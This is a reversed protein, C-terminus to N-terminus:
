RYCYIHRIHKCHTAHLINYERIPIHLADYVVEWMDLEEVYKQELLNRADTFLKIQQYADDGVRDLRGDALQDDGLQRVENPQALAM